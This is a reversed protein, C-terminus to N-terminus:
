QAQRRMLEREPPPASQGAGSRKGDIALAVLEELLPAKEIKARGRSTSGIWFDGNQLANQFDLLNQLTLAM